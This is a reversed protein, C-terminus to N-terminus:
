LVEKVVPRLRCAHAFYDGFFGLFPKMSFGLISRFHTKSVTYQLTYQLTIYGISKLFKLHGTVSQRDNQVECRMWLRSPIPELNPQLFSIFPNISETCNLKHIGPGENTKYHRTNIPFTTPCFLTQCPVSPSCIHDGNCEM